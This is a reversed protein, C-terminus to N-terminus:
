RFSSSITKKFIAAFFKPSFSKIMNVTIGHRQYYSKILTIVRRFEGHRVFRFFLVLFAYYNFLILENFQLRASNFGECVVSNVCEILKDESCNAIEIISDIPLDWYNHDYIFSAFCFTFPNIIQIMPLPKAWDSTCIWSIGSSCGVLLTCYKTLEANERFSLVSGDIIRKDKSDIPINSSLIVCANPIESILKRAVNLSFIPSVLSQDSKPACEFLIVYSKKELNHSQAFKRVNEIENLSLVLVPTIPVTIPRPYARFISSRVTGDFNQPNGPRIQTLFVEDFAGKKQMALAEKEFQRWANDVEDRNNIQVVWVEDVHPNGDLISVCLSSIAWTLHCGPYDTKIQRAIATAYLCDGNAHLQGLLIKKM